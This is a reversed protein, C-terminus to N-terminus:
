VSNQNLFQIAKVLDSENKINLKNEKLFDGLAKKIEPDVMKLFKRKKLEIEEIKNVGKKQLYYETFHTFRNSTAKVFSNQAPQAETFKVKSRVFLDFIEGKHIQTLYGNLTVDDKDIFTKFSLFKGGEVEISIEKNKHLGEIIEDLPTEKIEIEENFANYRYYVQRQKEEKYFLMAPKFREDTYPSGIYDGANFQNQRDQNLSSRLYTIAAGNINQAGVGAMNTAPQGSYQASVALPISILASLLLIISKM